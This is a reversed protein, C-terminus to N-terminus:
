PTASDLFLAGAPQRGVKVRDYKCVFLHASFTSAWTIAPTLVTIVMVNIRSAVAAPIRWSDKGSESQQPAGEFSFQTESNATASLNEVYDIILV